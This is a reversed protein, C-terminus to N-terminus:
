EEGRARRKALDIVDSAANRADAMAAYVVSLGMAYYLPLWLLAWVQIRIPAGRWACIRYWSKV